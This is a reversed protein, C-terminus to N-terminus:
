VALFRLDGQTSALTEVPVAESEAPAQQQMREMGGQVM